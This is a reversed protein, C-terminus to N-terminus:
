DYPEGCEVLILLPASAHPYRFFKGLYASFGNPREDLVDGCESIDQFFIERIIGNRRTPVVVAPCVVEGNPNAGSHSLRVMDEVDERTIEIGKLASLSTGTSNSHERSVQFRKRQVRAAVLRRPKHSEPATSPADSRCIPAATLKRRRRESPPFDSAGLTIVLPM